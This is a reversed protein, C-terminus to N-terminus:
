PKLTSVADKVGNTVKESLSSKESSGNAQGDEERAAKKRWRTLAGLIKSANALHSNDGGADPISSDDLIKAKTMEQVSSHVVANTPRDRPAGLNPPWYRVEWKGKELELRTFIPLIEIIWWLIVTLWGVGHGFSLMDHPQSCKKRLEFANTGEEVKGPFANESKIIDKVNTTRFFVKGEPSPLHLVEQVMWNLPTDSLLHKQNPEQFGWGGGVDGHNGAFWVEKLDVGEMESGDGLDFLAPKFKIRREHISVAHRIHRAAPCAINKFSTRWIPIEFQGVSNVCDFLGLFHVDVNPRCFTTKFSDMYQELDNIKKTAREAAKDAPKDPDPTNGKANQFNSFTEWAFRVMEENGKSLLGIDHLMEALFRATYAGRSFGFIYIYDGPQYYRMIFRYGSLVHSSFSTGVAQDLTTIIFSKIKPIIRFITDRSQGKVYTGIGPQYYHFQGPKDRELMQYLKVINTDVESGHFKNGTGDFCLVLRRPSGPQGPSGAPPDQNSEPVM